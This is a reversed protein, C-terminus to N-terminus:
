DSLMEIDPAKKESLFSRSKYSKSELLASYATLDFPSIADKSNLIVSDLIASVEQLYEPAVHNHYTIRRNYNDYLDMLFTNGDYIRNASSDFYTQKLAKGTLNNLLMRVSDTIAGKLYIASGGAYDHRVAKFNGKKDIAIHYDIYLEYAEKNPWNSWRFATYKISDALM